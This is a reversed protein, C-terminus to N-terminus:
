PTSRIHSNNVLRIGRAFGDQAVLLDADISDTDIDPVIAIGYSPLASLPLEVRVIAGSEMPPLYAAAPIALFGGAQIADENPIAARQALWIGLGCTLVLAAAIALWTPGVSRPVVRSNAPQGAMRSMEALVASEVHRGASAHRTSAALANLGTILTRQQQENMGPVTDDGATHRSGRAATEPDRDDERDSARPWSQATLAGHRDPM